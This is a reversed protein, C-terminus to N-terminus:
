GVRCRSREAIASSSTITATITLTFICLFLLRWHEAYKDTDMGMIAQALPLVNTM